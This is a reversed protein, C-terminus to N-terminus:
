DLPTFARQGKVFENEVNFALPTQETLSQAMYGLNKQIV